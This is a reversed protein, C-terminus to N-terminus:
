NTVPGTFKGPEPSRPTGHDPRRGDNNSDQRRGPRLIPYTRAAQGTAPAPDASRPPSRPSSKEDGPTQACAVRDCGFFLASLLWLTLLANAPRFGTKSASIVIELSKM